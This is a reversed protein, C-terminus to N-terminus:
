IKGIVADESVGTASANTLANDGTHETANTENPTVKAVTCEIANRCVNVVCHGM